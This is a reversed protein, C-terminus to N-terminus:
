SRNATSKRIGALLGAIRRTADDTFVARSASRALELQGMEM